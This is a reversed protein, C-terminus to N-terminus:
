SNVSDNSPNSVLGAVGTLPKEGVNMFDLTCFERPPPSQSLPGLSCRAWSKNHLCRIMQVGPDCLVAWPQFWTWGCGCDKYLASTKHLVRKGVMRKMEKEQGSPFFISLGEAPRGLLASAALCEVTGFGKKSHHPLLSCPGLLFTGWQDQSGVLAWQGERQGGPQGQTSIRILRM